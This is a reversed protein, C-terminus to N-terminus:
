AVKQEDQGFDHKLNAVMNDRLEITERPINLSGQERYIKSLGLIPETKEDWFGRSPRDRGFGAGSWCSEWKKSAGGDLHIVQAGSTPKPLLRSRLPPPAFCFLYGPYEARVAKRKDKAVLELAYLRPGIEKFRQQAREDADEALRDVIRSWGPWRNQLILDRWPL